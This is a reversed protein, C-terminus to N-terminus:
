DGMNVGDEAGHGVDDGMNNGDDTGHGVDDGINNRNDAGHGVNHGMNVGDGTSDTNSSGMIGDSERDEIGVITKSVVLEEQPLQQRFYMRRDSHNVACGAMLCTVGIPKM